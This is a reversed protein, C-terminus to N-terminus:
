VRNSDLSANSSTQLGDPALLTQTAHLGSELENLTVGKFRGGQAQFGLDEQEEVVDEQSRSSGGNKWLLSLRNEFENVRVDEDPLFAGAEEPELGEMWPAKPNRDKNSGGENDEGM